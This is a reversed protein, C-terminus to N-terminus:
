LFSAALDTSVPHAMSGMTPRGPNIAASHIGAQCCRRGCCLRGCVPALPWGTAEALNEFFEALDRVGPRHIWRIPGAGTKAVFILLPAVAIAIVRWAHRVQSLIRYQELTAPIMAIRALALRPAADRLLHAYAALVSVLVYGRWYATRSALFSMLSASSLTALLVFLSYSRAEQAYRLM